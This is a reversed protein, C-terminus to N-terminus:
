ALSARSSASTPCAHKPRHDLPGTATELAGSILAPMTSMRRARAPRAGGLSTEADDCRGEVTPGLGVLPGPLGPFAYVQLAGPSARHTSTPRSSQPPGKTLKWSLVRVQLSQPWSNM